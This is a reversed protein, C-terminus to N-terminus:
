TLESCSCAPNMCYKWRKKWFEEKKKVTSTNLFRSHRCLSSAMWLWLPRHGESGRAQYADTEVEHLFKGSERERTIHDAKNLTVLIHPSLINLVRQRAVRAALRWTQCNKRQRFWPWRNLFSWSEFVETPFLTYPSFSKNSHVVFPFLSRNSHVM